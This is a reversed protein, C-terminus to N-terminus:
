DTGYLQERIINGINEFDRDWIVVLKINNISCWRAKRVDRKQSNAFGMRDGHFHQNFEDHQAGNFEFAMKMSPIFFDLSLNDGWCPYEELIACSPFKDLLFQGLKKQGQSKSTERMPYEDPRISKNHVRGSTDIFKM